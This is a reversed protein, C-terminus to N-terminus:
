KHLLVTLACIPSMSAINNDTWGIPLSRDSKNVERVANLVARANNHVQRGVTVHVVSSLM